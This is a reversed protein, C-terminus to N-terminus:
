QSVLPFSTLLLQCLPQIPCHISNNKQIVSSVSVLDFTVQAVDLSLCDNLCNRLTAEHLRTYKQLAKLTVIGIGYLKGFTQTWGLTMECHMCM